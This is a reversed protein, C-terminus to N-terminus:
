TKTNSHTLLYKRMIMWHATLISNGAAVQDESLGEIVRGRRQHMKLGKVGKCMKGCSCKIVNIESGLDADDNATSNRTNNSGVNNPM